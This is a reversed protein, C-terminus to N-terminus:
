HSYSLLTWTKFNNLMDLAPTVGSSLPFHQFRNVNLHMGWSDTLILTQRRNELITAIGM